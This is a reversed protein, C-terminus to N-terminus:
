EQVAPKLARSFNPDRILVPYMRMMLNDARDPSRGLEAKVDKKSIVQRKGDNDINVERMAHLEEVISEQLDIPCDLYILWRKVLDSLLFYCQTKLNQYNAKVGDDNPVVSSGNIFGTCWLNDVVGGGVGDEDVIIDRIFVGRDQAEKRLRDSLKYTDSKDESRLVRGRFGERYTCTTLDEWWRAVDVILFKGTNEQIGAFNKYIRRLDDYDFLIGPTDDYERNGYYLRQKMPWESMRALKAIYDKPIFPNQRALVQIFSKHEEITGEKQPKYFEKYVRNKAPNCSMLLKGPIWYEENKYRGIRTSLVEYAKRILQNVEDVFGGTFETSWLKDFNPDKGPYHKMDMLVIESRNAFKIVNNNSLKFHEGYKLWFKDQAVDLFTNYTTIKLASLESRGMLWRTRPYQMCMQCLRTCWTTSKAGGAWGWILIERVPSENDLLLKYITSQRPFMEIRKM